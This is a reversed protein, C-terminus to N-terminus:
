ADPQPVAPDVSPTPGSPQASTGTSGGTKLGAVLRTLRQGDLLDLPKGAAFSKAEDTFYGSTILVGGKVGESVVVGFLERVEKVGVRYAKWHKCQILLKGDKSAVLDAGGDAGGGGLEVVSYGQRRYAEGVLREFERWTLRRISEIGTQQDFLRRARAQFVAALIALLVVGVGVVPGFVSTAGVIVQYGPANRAAMPIAYTVLLYAIPAALLLLWWPLALMHRPVRADRRGM